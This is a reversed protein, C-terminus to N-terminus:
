SKATQANMRGEEDQVLCSETVNCLYETLHQLSFEIGMLINLLVGVVKLPTLM